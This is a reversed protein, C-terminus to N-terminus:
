PTQIDVVQNKRRAEEAAFVTLHSELTEDPGSLIMSRDGTAVAQVFAEMIGGDGGGHGGLIGADGASTDIERWDNTLYSFIKITSSDTDIYGRTGGIRTLRGSGPNFATMTFSVTGGNAYELNVVQQDVVDNDCAYVCQGYPGDRLAKELTEETMMPDVVDLPWGKQDNRLRNFYFSKASYPCNTEISEPCEMCRDAAGTPQNGKRFHFLSGFSSVRQCPKGVIYRLWDIDHCSKALLMFSSERENRWNGRVFSHAQHWFGVPELHQVTVIDGIEGQDLLKKLTQTYRTYRMVHCVAFVVDTKKVESVIRQCSEPTPAMPKELLIHYGLNAFAIAPEEHMADQTCILVADAFKPQNAVQRWDTFVNDPKIDHENVLSERHFERPEAVGVIKAKDPLEKAYKAYGQGRGGAGIIILEVPNNNPNPNM